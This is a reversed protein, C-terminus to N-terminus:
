ETTARLLTGAAMKAVEELEHSPKSHIGTVFWHSSRLSSHTMHNFQVEFVIIWDYMCIIILFYQCLCQLFRNPM